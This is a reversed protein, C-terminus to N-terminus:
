MGFIEHITRLALVGLDLVLANMEPEDSLCNDQGGACCLEEEAIPMDLCKGCLCWHPQAQHAPGEARPQLEWIDLFLGPQRDALRPLLRRMAQGDMNEVM